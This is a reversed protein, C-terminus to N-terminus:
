CMYHYFTKSFMLSLFVYILGIKQTLKNLEFDPEQLDDLLVGQM